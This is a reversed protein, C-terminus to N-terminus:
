SKRRKFFKFFRKVWGKSNHEDESIEDVQQTDASCDCVEEAADEVDAADECDEDDEYRGKIRLEEPCDGGAYDDEGVDNGNVYHEYIEYPGESPDYDEIDASNCLVEVGFMKSREQVTNYWYKEEGADYAEQYDDPLEVPFEGEWPTCYADVAWKCNGEFHMVYEEDTGDEDIIEKSDVCSM